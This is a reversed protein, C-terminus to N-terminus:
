GIVDAPGYGTLETFAPNVYLILGEADTIVVAERAQEVSAALVAGNGARAPLPDASPAVAAPAAKVPSRWDVILALIAVLSLGAFRAESALGMSRPRFGVVAEGAM